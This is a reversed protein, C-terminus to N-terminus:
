PTGDSNQQKRLETSSVDARFESVPLEEFLSAFEAPVHLDALTMLQDGMKRGAVLFRCRNAAVTELAQRTAEDGGGYYRSQIIREATDVGVVFTMGPLAASKEAFTPASTLVLPVNSFQQRREEITLYDLPPKDVNRLSIEFCVPQGLHAEAARRLQEHGFHLPNFAGCLVGQPAGAGSSTPLEAALRWDPLSWVHSISGRRLAVLLPNGAAYREEISESPLLELPPCEGVGAARALATLLLQGALQEEGSRDRAGKELVLEVGHTAEDTEVAIHIRHPGKKPRDSVLSSTCGVGLFRFGDEGRSNSEDKASLRYARECAITAMARATEASCFQEPTRRLWETLAASSYPVTGELITRSGGPVTLLDAIASSGGGTVVVVCKVPQSHIAEILRRWEPLM